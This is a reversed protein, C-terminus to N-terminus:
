CSRPKRLGMQCVATLPRNGKENALNADAQRTLLEGIICPYRKAYAVWLASNGLANVEHIPAGRDLVFQV